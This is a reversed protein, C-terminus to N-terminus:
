NGLLKALSRYQTGADKQLRTAERYKARAEPLKGLRYYALAANVRIGGDAPDVEEAFRYSELAREYDGRDYYLNGRNNLAAAHRPNAALISEFEKLAVDTAGNRGYINGIQLRAEEDKPNSALLQRYPQVERELRRAILVRQERDILRSAREGAPVELAFSAPALTVPPYKEWARRLSLIKIQKKAEAEHYRRGGEAWAESFSTAILTAEVPIWIEGDRVALLEDQLSILGRDAVKVGTRFMLFLHGPVDILATEIGLNEYAAALLVSLDDCDGSKLRLTERPFQVYDVQDAAVRSFPTNPDAQYRLGQASLINYVTSALALPRNLAGQSPPAYRNTAERVFNRLTDDRPTVFSGVMEGNAWLIANKGYLTVAQTIDQAADRTDATALSVIALVRTDEDIGLIKSNFTANLPVEVTSNAKLEAIERNVPFDMYEKIFFSVRLNKFDDATDNKVKVSGIKETAYQKHAAVFMRELRLDEIRPRAVTGSLAKKKQDYAGALLRQNADSPNLKAALTLEAIAADFARRELHVEAMAVHPADARDDIRAAKELYTLAQDHTNSDAFSVGLQFNVEYSDPQLELAHKLTQIAEGSKGQRNAATAALLLPEVNKPALKQAERAARGSDQWRGLAALTRAQALRLDLDAPALAVARELAALAQPHRGERSELGALRKFVDAGADPLAAAKSLAERAKREDKMGLYADALAAWAAGYKPNLRTARALSIVAEEHKGQAIAIRGLVYQGISEEVPSGAMSLAITRAQEFEGLALHTNATAILAETDRPAIAIARKYRELADRPRGLSLLVGGARLWNSTESPSAACAKDLEAIGKDVAGLRVFAEGLVARATANKPDRALATELCTVAGAADGLQLGLEGCLTYTEANAQNATIARETASRAGLLDGSAALARAEHLRGVTEWGPRRALDQFHGVAADYRGMALLSRGLYEVAAAHSPAAQVARKFAGAAPEYRKALFEQYGERFVDEVPASPDGEVGFNSQAGVRYFLFRGAADAGFSAEATKTEVLREYPGEKERAAYVRYSSVYRATSKLWTVRVKDTEGLVAVGGVPPVPQLFHYVALEKREADFLAFTYSAPPTSFTVAGSPEIQPSRYAAFSFERIGGYSVDVLQKGQETASSVYLRNESDVSLGHIKEYPIPDGDVTYRWELKASYVQVARTEADAVYINGAADTVVAVPKSLRRTKSDPVDALKNVFIGDRTFIQVRHNDTDAVYLYDALHLGGIEDFEGDRSGGRGVTFRLKGNQAFIKVSDGDAIAIDRADAAARRPNEIKGSFELKLKGASDLRTVKGPKLCLIDGGDLVYAHECELNLTSAQRVSALRETEPLVNKAEPVRFFEIKKNGSDAVALDRGAIALAVVASFQGRGGGPSGFRHTAKAHEWDLEVINGNASDAVFVRGTSDAALARWRARRSGAFSEASLRKLLKGSHSYVSLRGPGADELVYVREAGDVAVQLPRSLETGEASRGSIANLFVGDESFVAVRNNSRDAVYLRKRSSFALGEPDKLEGYGRGGGAFVRVVRGEDDIIAITDNSTNAVAVRGKGLVALGGTKKSTFARGGGALDTPKAREGALRWLAGRDREVFLVTGDEALALGSVESLQAGETTPEWTRLFQIEPRQAFAPSLAIEACCLALVVGFRGARPDCCKPAIGRSM